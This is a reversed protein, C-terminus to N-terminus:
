SSAPDEKELEEENTSEEEEDYDVGNDESCKFLLFLLLLLLKSKWLAKRPVCLRKVPSLLCVSRFLFFTSLVFLCFM